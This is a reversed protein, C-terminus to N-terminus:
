MTIWYTGDNNIIYAEGPNILISTVAALDYINDSGARQLTLIGSGRNKIFFTRNTNGSVAPLTWTTTSGTFVWITGTDDLTASGASSTIVTWREDTTTKNTFIDTTAKGVLTDTTTPLTLTPTGASAAVTLTATGSTAGALALAGTASTAVGITLTSTAFTLNASEQVVNGAGEFLLRTATGSTIATTGITIGSGGSPAAWSPLGAALTLVNGNSGVGLRTLIGSSNRYYVDGTADSGLTMTVGGIIAGTSLTGTTITGLTTISTQGVYSASIDIVPTTGGTSTIRNTTGSVSTVSGSGTSLALWGTNTGVGSYKLYVFGNTADNVYAIDGPNGTQAGEPTATRFYTSHSATTSYSNVWETIYDSDGGGGAHGVQFQHDATLTANAGLAIGYSFNGTTNLGLYISRFATTVGQGAAKGLATMQTGTTLQYLANQGIATCEIGTGTLAALTNDGIATHYYNNVTAVGLANRGWTTNRNDDDQVSYLNGGRFLSGDNRFSFDTTSTSNIHLATTTRLADVGKVHLLGLPSSTIGIGLEGTAFFRAVEINNTIVPFDFNDKTGINYIAGNVNGGLKWNNVKAFGLIYIINDTGIIPADTQQTYPKNANNNNAGDINTGDTAIVIQPDLESTQDSDTTRTAVAQTGVSGLNTWQYIGNYRQDASNKNLFRMGFTSTVGNIAPAVGNANITITAGIGGAGNNYTFAPLVDSTTAKVILAAYINESIAIALSESIIDNGDGILVYGDTKGDLDSPRNTADGVKVTGRTMDALKANTVAEDRIMHTEIWGDESADPATDVDWAGSHYTCTINQKVTAQVESFVEDFITLTFAGVTVVAKYIIFVQLASFPTGSSQITLNGTLTVNGTVVFLTNQEAVDITVNGSTPLTILRVLPSVPM